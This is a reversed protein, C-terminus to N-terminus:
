PRDDSCASQQIKCGKYKKGSSCFSIAQAKAASLKTKASFGWSGDNHGTGHSVAIAVCADGAWTVAKCDKNNGQEACYQIALQQAGALSDAAWSIGTNLSSPSIAVAAYTDASQKANRATGPRPTCPRMANQEYMCDPINSHTELQQQQGPPSPCEFSELGNGYPDDSPGLCQAAQAHKGIFLITAIVLGMALAFAIKQFTHRM